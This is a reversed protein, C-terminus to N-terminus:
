INKNSGRPTSHQLDQHLRVERSFHESDAPICLPLVDMSLSHPSGIGATYKANTNWVWAIIQMYLCSDQLTLYICSFFVSFQGHFASIGWFLIKLLFLSESLLLEDISNLWENVYTGSPLMQIYIQTYLMETVM